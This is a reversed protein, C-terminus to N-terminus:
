AAVRGLTVEPWQVGELAVRHAKPMEPLGAAGYRDLAMTLLWLADAENHDHGEFRLRRIAAALVEEKPANGKGTAYKKLSAPPVDVFTLSADFLALRIVGGLEAMERASHGRGPAFGYGEIVVLDAGAALDLVQARIWALRILGKAATKPPHLVGTQMEFGDSIAFSTATLSPDFAVVKM